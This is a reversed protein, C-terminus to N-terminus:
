LDCSYIEKVDVDNEKLVKKVENMYVLCMSECFLYMVFGIGDEKM